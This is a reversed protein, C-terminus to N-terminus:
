NKPVVARTTLISPPGIIPGSTAATSKINGAISKLAAELEDRNGADHYTGGTEVALCQLASTNREALDFGVIHTKLGTGSAALERGLACPDGGCTELGDTILVISTNSGRNKLSDAARRVAQTLPTKGKPQLGEIAANVTNSSSGNFTVLTEIDDCDGKTRHGYAMVGINATDSLDAITQTSVSKVIDMKIDDDVRGLMSGSGDLILVMDQSPKQADQAAAVHSWFVVSFLVFWRGM